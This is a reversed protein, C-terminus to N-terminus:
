DLKSFDFAPASALQEKTLGTTFRAEKGVAIQNVPVAVLKNGLGLFGGVSLIVAAVTARDLDVLVDEIEGIPTDGKYVRSGVLKTARASGALAANDFAITAPTQPSGGSQTQQAHPTTTVALVVMFTALALRKM